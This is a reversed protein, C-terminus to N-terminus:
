RGSQHNAIIWAYTHLSGILAIGAGAVRMIMTSAAVAVYRWIALATILGGIAYLNWDDFVGLQAKWIVQMLLMSVAGVILFATVEDLPKPRWVTLPILLGIFPCLLVLLELQDRYYRAPMGFAFVGSLRLAHGAHSSFFRFLPLGNFHFFVFVIAIVAAACAGSRMAERLSGARLRSVMALYAASPLLWGAELHFVVAVALVLAPVWLPSERTLFRCAALVYLVVIAATITYNEVDGFFLQMYAGSLAGLLFLWTREPALRPALRMLGYVFLSGAVCSLVAYSFVVSWGWWSHAYHWFRSHVFLELLEDHSLHAGVLPVDREIKPTLMNGDQNLVNTRLLFFIPWSLVAMLVATSQREIPLRPNLFALAIAALLAAVAATPGPRLILITAVAAAIWTWEEARRTAHATLGGGAFAL